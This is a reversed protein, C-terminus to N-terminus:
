NDDADPLIVIFGAILAFGLVLFMMKLPRNGSENLEHPLIEFATV